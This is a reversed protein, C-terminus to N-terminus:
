LLLNFDAVGTTRDDRNMYKGDEEEVMAAATSIRHNKKHNRQQQQQQQDTTGFYVPKKTTPPEGGPDNGDNYISGFRGSFLSARKDKQQSDARQLLPNHPTTTTTQMTLGQIDSFLIDERQRNWLERSMSPSTGNKTPTVTVSLFDTKMMASSGSHQDSQSRPLTAARPPPPHCHHDEEDENFSRSSFFIGPLFGRSTTTTTTKTKEPPIAHKVVARGGGGGGGNSTTTMLQHELFELRTVLEVKEEVLVMVKTQFEEITRQYLGLQQEATATGRRDSGNGNSSGITSGSGNMTELQSSSSSSSTMHALYHAAQEALDRNDEKLRANDHKLSANETVLEAIIDRLISADDDMM